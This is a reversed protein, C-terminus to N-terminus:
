PSNCMLIEGKEERNGVYVTNLNGEELPKVSTYPVYRKSKVDPLCTEFAEYTHEAYDETNLSVLKTATSMLKQGVRQAKKYKEHFCPCIFLKLSTEKIDALM